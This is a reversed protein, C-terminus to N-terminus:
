VSKQNLFEDFMSIQNDDIQPAEKLKNRDRISLGFHSSIEDLLKYASELESSYGTKNTAGSQFIQVYGAVGHTDKQNLENIRRTLICIKDMAMSAKHLHIQDLKAFKKTKILEKGFWFWWYKQSTTLGFRLSPKPVYDLMKFLEKKQKEKFEIGKIVKM